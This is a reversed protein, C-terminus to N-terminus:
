IKDDRKISRWILGKRRRWRCCNRTAPMPHMANSADMMQFIGYDGSFAIGQIMYENQLDRRLRKYDYEEPEMQFFM